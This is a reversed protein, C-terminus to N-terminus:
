FQLRQGRFPGGGREIGGSRTRQAFARFIAQPTQLRELLLGIRRTGLGPVMRLALWYLEEEANLPQPLSTSLSPSVSPTLQPM